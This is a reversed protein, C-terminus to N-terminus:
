GKNDIVTVKIVPRIGRTEVMTQDENQWGQVCMAKIEAERRSGHGNVFDQRPHHGNYWARSRHFPGEDWEQTVSGPVRNPLEKGSM